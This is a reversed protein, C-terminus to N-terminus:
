WFRNVWHMSFLTYSLEINYKLFLPRCVVAYSTCGWKSSLKSNELARVSCFILINTYPILLLNPKMKFYKWFKWNFPVRSKCIRLRRIFQKWSRQKLSTKETYSIVCNIKNVFVLQIGKVTNQEEKCMELAPILFSLGVFLYSKVSEQSCLNTRCIIISDNQLYCFLVSLSVMWFCTWMYM